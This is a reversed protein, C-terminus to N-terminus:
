VADAFQNEQIKEQDLYCSDTPWVNELVKCTLSVAFGEGMLGAIGRSRLPAPSPVSLSTTKGSVAGCVSGKRPVRHKWVRREGESKTPLLLDALRFLPCPSRGVNSPKKWTFGSLRHRRRPKTLFRTSYKCDYWSKKFQLWAKKGTIQIIYFLWRM